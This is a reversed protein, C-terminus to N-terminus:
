GTRRTMPTGRKLLSGGWRRLLALNAAAKGERARSRDENFYLDLVWHLGNEIGWHGRIAAALPEARAELSSIFYRVEAKSEGREEWCRTVRCLSKLDVWDARHRLGKPVPLAEYRRYEGGGGGLEERGAGGRRPA